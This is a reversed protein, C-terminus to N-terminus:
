SWVLNETEVKDTPRVKQESPAAWVSFQGYSQDSTTGSDNAGTKEQCYTKEIPILLLCILIGTYLLSVLQLCLPKKAVINRNAKHATLPYIQAVSHKKM